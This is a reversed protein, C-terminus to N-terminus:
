FIYWNGSKPVLKYANSFPVQLNDDSVQGIIQQSNVALVNLLGAGRNAVEIPRLYSDADPLTWDIETPSIAVAYDINSLNIEAATVITNPAGVAGSFPNGGLTVGDGSFMQEMDTDYVLEGKLPLYALRQATTGRLAQFKTIGNM